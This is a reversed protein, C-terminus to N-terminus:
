SSLRGKLNTEKLTSPQRNQSSLQRDLEDVLFAFHRLVREVPEPSTMDVGARKLLRIPDDSAGARLFQKYRKVAEGSQDTKIARVIAHSAALSTAYKYVYFADYFHPIRLWGRAAGPDAAYAPGYYTKLLGLWLDNLEDATLSGGQRVKDHIMREFESYMVQTYLTGRIQEIQEILLRLKEEKTKAQKYLYDLLLWENATSAVEATFISHGSYHYPQAENTYVSHMAHGLEHAMTLVSDLSGSYNLLIFPHTDYAGTNYGGTYKKPRPYVDLWREQFARHVRRIYDAGLPKLGEMILTKATEVPIPKMPESVLPVYLDYSHVRDLGLARRRLAVYRHLAPLHRRTAAILHDFVEKPVDDAALAAALGSPYRRVNAYLEDAKVSAYLTAAATQEMAEYSKAKAEFAAKRYRRDSHELMAAYQDDTLTVTKGNPMKVSPPEYDGRAAHDYINEAEGLAPLLKALLQEERKTLTHPKQERLEHFYYRYAKLPESNQLKKLTREPLALLEPEIFATKAAYHAALAEVKAGLRAATKDEINLDRKLHAYLSLKELKRATQENLAFLQAITKADDLKGAFAALKPLANQVAQYDRMWEHESPYIDAVNWEYATEAASTPWPSTLLLGAALGLLWRKM